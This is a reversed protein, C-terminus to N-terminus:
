LSVVLRSFSFTMLQESVDRAWLVGNIQCMLLSGHFCQTAGHAAGVGVWFFPLHQALFASIRESRAKLTKGQDWRIKKTSPFDLEVARFFNASRQKPSRAPPARQMPPFTSDCVMSFTCSSGDLNYFHLGRLARARSGLLYQSCGCFDLHVTGQLPWSWGSHQRSALMM